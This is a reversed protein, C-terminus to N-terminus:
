RFFISGRQFQQGLVTPFSSQFTRTLSREFRFCLTSTRVEYEDSADDRLALQSLTYLFSPLIMLIGNHARHNFLSLVFRLFQDPIM